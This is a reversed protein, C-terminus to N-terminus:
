SLVEESFLDYVFAHTIKINVIDGENHKIKSSLFVSGDIDDIANFGCRVLYVNESEKGIIMGKFTKGILNKNEQYSIKSQLEM